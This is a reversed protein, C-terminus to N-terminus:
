ADRLAALLELDTAAMLVSQRVPPRRLARAADGMLWLDKVGVPEIRMFIIRCPTGDPTWDPVGHQVTGVAVITEKAEAPHAHPFACGEGVGTTGLRERERLAHRYALLIAAPLGLRRGIEGLIADTASDRCRADINRCVVKIANALRESM